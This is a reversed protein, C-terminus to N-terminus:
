NTTQTLDEAFVKNSHIAPLQFGHISNNIVNVYIHLLLWHGFINLLKIKTFANAEEFNRLHNAIGLQKISSSEDIKNNTAYITTRAVLLLYPFGFLLWVCRSIGVAWFSRFQITNNMWRGTRLEIWCSSSDAGNNSTTVKEACTWIPITVQLELKFIQNSPLTKLSTICTESMSFYLKIPLFRVCCKKQLRRVQLWCSWLAM